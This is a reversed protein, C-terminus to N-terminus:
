GWLTRVKYRAIYDDCTLITMGSDLAQAVLMRDFPDRHIEPLKGAMEGHVFRVPLEVFGEEEIVSILNEPAQLKGLAKKISIEWGSVASVYLESESSSIIKRVSEPMQPDDALWWLLAHTDLLYTM